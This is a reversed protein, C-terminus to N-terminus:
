RPRGTWRPVPGPIQQGNSAFPYLSSPTGGPCPRRERDAAEVAAEQRSRAPGAPEVPLILCSAGSPWQCGLGPAWDGDVLKRPWRCSASCRIRARRNLSAGEAHGGAAGMGASGPVTSPVIGQVCVQKNQHMQVSVPYFGQLPDVVHCTRTFPASGRSCTAWPQAWCQQPPEAAQVGWRHTVGPQQTHSPPVSFSFVCSPGADHPGGRSWLTLLVSIFFSSLM